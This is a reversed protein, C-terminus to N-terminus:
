IRTPLGFNHFTRIVGDWGATVIVLGWTDSLAERNRDNCHRHLDDGNHLLLHDEVVPVDWLPLKEEPWTVSGRFSGDMSFCNSLSFRKSDRRWSSAEHHDQTQLDLSKQKPEMSSWPIAVSVGESFFHECSRVSSTQKSQPVCLDDYNWMYVRSDEGVSVIHRGTSTFSASMQSGSKALGTYKHVIDIGDLIRVKSDESTIMLKRTEKHTFQIGTIKNSSSKKKGRFRIQANLQLNSESAGYFSCTGMISGVIFGNGDPHYCIATVSDRVDAWDVVRREPVGWIRVKGDVSGTIFYNEDTPNFQICTVYDNHQFVGLCENCGVLWLRVTKDKSASLLCNSTSWALDLVDSTHGHFEQLPLEDIRFVKDPIGVSIHSSKTKGSNSKGEDYLDKCSTDSQTVRWIRIIGDQGGSALYQCDPSFKMSWILGEHARIEQGVYVATLEMCKKKNQRVKMKNAKSTEAMPKLVKSVKSKNMFHKWWSRLKNNDDINKHERVPPFDFSTEGKLAVNSNNVQDKEFEDVGYNAEGNLERFECVLQEEAGDVPSSCCSSVAGSCEGIREFGMMELEEGLALDHSPVSEVFGMGRLFSERREKVSRPEKLWIEYELNGNLWDEKVASEESSLNDASDFFVEEGEDFSLM